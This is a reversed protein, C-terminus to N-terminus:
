WLASCDCQGQGHGWHPVHGDDRPSQRRMTEPVPQLQAPPRLGVVAKERRRQVVPRSIKAHLQRASVAPRSPPTASRDPSCISCASSSLAEHIPLGHRRHSALSTLCLESKAGAPAAARGDARPTSAPLNFGAPLSGVSASRQHHNSHHSHHSAPLPQNMMDHM